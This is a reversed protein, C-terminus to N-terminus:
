CLSIMKGCKGKEKKEKKDHDIFGVLLIRIPLRTIRRCGTWWNLTLHQMANVSDDLDTGHIALHMIIDRHDISISSMFFEGQTRPPNTPAPKRENIRM